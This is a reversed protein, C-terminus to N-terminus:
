GGLKRFSPVKSTTIAESAITGLSIELAALTSLHGGTSPPKRRIM